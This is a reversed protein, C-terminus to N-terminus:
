AILNYQKNDILNRILSKVSKDIVIGAIMNNNLWLLNSSISM